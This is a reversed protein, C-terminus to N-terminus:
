ESLLEVDRQVNAPSSGLGPGSNPANRVLAMRIMVVAVLVIAKNEPSVGAIHGLEYAMLISLVSGSDDFSVVHDNPVDIGLRRALPLLSDEFRRQFEGSSRPGM